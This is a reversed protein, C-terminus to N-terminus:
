KWLGCGAEKKGGRRQQGQGSIVRWVKKWSRRLRGGRSGVSSESEEAASGPATAEEENNQAQDGLEPGDDEENQELLGATTVRELACEDM